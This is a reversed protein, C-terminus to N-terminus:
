PRAAVRSLLHPLVKSADFYEVALDRAARAHRDYHTNLDDIAAVADEMTSFALLGNGIPLGAGFGTDQAMVPRGSALYCVSRDSFWGSRSKVYGSKAIGIEAKSSRIFHKYSDPTGAVDQPDVVIWNHAKLSNCDRTEGPHIALAVRFTDRALVPLAMFERFSHAKQGYLVGNWEISGYGRWNAITTIDQTPRADAAPWDDLVLPQLTPIWEVGCTPVACEPTGILQGVTAFHTHGDFRRDIHQVAHWLQNFAPDLDLYVRVPISHLLGGDALLGSINILLDADATFRQLDAYSAGVTEHSGELLLAAPGAPRLDRVVDAFYQANRSAALSTGEPQLATTAIPEVFCVDHGLRRLGLLYQLVAWTAGGQYPDAAIMGSLVIRLPTVRTGDFPRSRPSALRTPPSDM